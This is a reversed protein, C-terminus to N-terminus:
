CKDRAALAALAIKNIKGLLGVASSASEYGRDSELEIKELAERLRTNEALLDTVKTESMDAGTHDTM